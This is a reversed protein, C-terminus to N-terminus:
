GGGVCLIAGCENRRRYEKKRKGVVKHSYISWEVETIIFFINQLVFSRRANM